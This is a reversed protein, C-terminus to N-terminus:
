NCLFPPQPQSCSVGLCPHCHWPSYTLSLAAHARGWGVHVLFRRIPACSRAVSRGIKLARVFFSSAAFSPAVSSDDRKYASAVESDTNDFINLVFGMTFYFWRRQCAITIKVRGAVRM